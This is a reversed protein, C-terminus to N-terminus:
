QLTLVWKLVKKVDDEPAKVMTHNKVGKWKAFVDADSKGKLEEAEHKFSPGIKKTDVAHCMFCGSKQALDEEGASAKGAAGMAVAMVAVIAISRM